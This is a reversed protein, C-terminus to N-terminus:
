VKSIKTHKLIYMNAVVIPRGSGVLVQHAEIYVFIRLKLPRGPWETSAFRVCEASLGVAELSGKEFATTHGVVELSVEGSVLKAHGVAGLSIM